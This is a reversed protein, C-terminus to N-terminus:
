KREFPFKGLKDGKEEPTGLPPRGTDNDALRDRMISEAIDAGQGSFGRSHQAPNAPVPSQMSTDVMNADYSIGDMMRPDAGGATSTVYAPVVGSMPTGVQQGHSSPISPVKNASPSGGPNYRAAMARSTATSIPVSVTSGAGEGFGVLSANEDSFGGTSSVGDDQDESMKDADYDISGSAWTTRGGVSGTASASGVTSREKVQPPVNDFYGPPPITGSGPNLHSPQAPRVTAVRELGALRSIRDAREADLTNSSTTSDRASHHHHGHPLTHGQHGDKIATTSLASLSTTCSNPTGRGDGV